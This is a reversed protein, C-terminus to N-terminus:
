AGVAKVAKRADVELRELRKLMSEDTAAQAVSQLSRMVNRVAQRTEEAARRTALRDAIAAVIDAPELAYWSVEAIQRERILRMVEAIKSAEISSRAGSTAARDLDRKLREVEGRLSALQYEVEADDRRSRTGLYSVLRVYAPTLDVPELPPAPKLITMSRTRRGSPPAMVGWAEPIELGEVLKPDSVVLWWRVCFRSWSEAKAPEALERLVDARNVKIEHGIIDRGRGGAITTPIWLLDARRRGDPAEIEPVFVGGPARGPPLYMGRLLRLVDDCTAATM